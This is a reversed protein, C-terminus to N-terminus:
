EALDMESRMAYVFSRLAELQATRAKLAQSAAFREGSAIDRVARLDATVADVHAQKQAAIGQATLWATAKSKRYNREAEAYNRSSERVAVIANDILTSLRTMEVRLEQLETM